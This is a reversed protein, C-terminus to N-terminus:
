GPVRFSDFSWTKAALRQPDLTDWEVGNIQLTFHTEGNGRVLFRIATGDAPAHELDRHICKYVNEGLVHNLLGVANKVFANNSSVLNVAAVEQFIRLLDGNSFRLGHKVELWKMLLFFHCGFRRLVEHPFNTQIGEEMIPIEPPPKQQKGMKKQLFEFILKLLQLLKKM